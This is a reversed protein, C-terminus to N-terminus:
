DAMLEKIKKITIHPNKVVFTNVLWAPIDGGPDAFYQFRISIEDDSIEQIDWRGKAEPMRVYNKQKKVKQPQNFIEIELADAHEHFVLQQIIDRNAFPFPVKLNMHYTIENSDPNDVIEASECDPMWKHYNDVDMLIAKFDRISGKFTAEAKFENFRSTDISRTYIIIDDKDLSKVWESDISILFIMSLNALFLKFAFM